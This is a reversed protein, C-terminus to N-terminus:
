STTQALRPHELGALPDDRRIVLPQLALGMDLGPSPGRARQNAVDHGPLQANRAGFFADDHYLSGLDTPVIPASPVAAACALKM